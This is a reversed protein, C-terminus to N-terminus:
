RRADGDKRGDSGLACFLVHRLEVIADLRLIDSLRRGTPSKLLAKLRNSAMVQKLSKELYGYGAPATPRIGFVVLDGSQAQEAAQGVAKQFAADDSILHDGCPCPM